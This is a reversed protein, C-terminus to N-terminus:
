CRAHGYSLKGFSLLLMPTTSSVLSYNNLNELKEHIDAKQQVIGGLIRLATADRDGTIQKPHKQFNSIV